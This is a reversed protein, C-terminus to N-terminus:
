VQVLHHDRPILVFDRENGVGVRIQLSREDLLDMFQSLVFYGAETAWNWLDEARIGYNKYNVSAFEMVIIPKFRRVCNPAGRLVLLEAGECDLKILDVRAVNEAALITDLTRQSVKIASFKETRRTYVLGDMSRDPHDNVAFDVDDLNVDALAIQFLGTRPALGNIAVNRELMSFALPSPEFSLSEAM